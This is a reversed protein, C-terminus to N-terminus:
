DGAGATEPQPQGAAADQASADEAKEEDVADIIDGYIQRRAAMIIASAEDAGM